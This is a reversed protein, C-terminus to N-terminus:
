LHSELRKKSPWVTHENPCRNVGCALSNVEADTDVDTDESSEMDVEGTCEMDADGTSEMEADRTSEFVAKAM